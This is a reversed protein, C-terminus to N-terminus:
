SGHYELEKNILDMLRAELGLLYMRVARATKVTTWMIQIRPNSGQYLETTYWTSFVGAALFLWDNLNKRDV